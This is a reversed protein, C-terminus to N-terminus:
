RTRLADEGYYAFYGTEEMTGHIFSILKIIREIIQSCMRSSRWKSFLMLETEEKFSAQV